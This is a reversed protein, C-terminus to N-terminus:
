SLYIVFTRLLFEILIRPTEDSGRKWFGRTVTVFVFGGVSLIYVKIRRNSRRLRYNFLKLDTSVTETSPPHPSATVPFPKSKICLSM